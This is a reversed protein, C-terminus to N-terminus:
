DRTQPGVWCSRLFVVMAVGVGAEAITMTAWGSSASNITAPVTALPARRAGRHRIDDDRFAVFAAVVRGHCWGAQRGDAFGFLAGGAADKADLVEDEHAVFVAVELVGEGKSFVEGAEDADMAGLDHDAEVGRVAKKTVVVHVVRVM